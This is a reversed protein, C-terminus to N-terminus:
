EKYPDVTINEDKETMSDDAVVEIGFYGNEGASFRLVSKVARSLRIVGDATKVDETGKINASVSYSLVYMGDEDLNWYFEADANEDNVSINRSEEDLVVSYNEFAAKFSDTFVVSAAANVVECRITVPVTVGSVVEISGAEGYIHKQGYGNNASVAEEATCNQASVAYTGPKVSYPVGKLESYSVADEGITVMYSDLEEDSVSKVQISSDTNLGVSIFGAGTEDKDAIIKENCAAFACVAAAAFLIKKMM